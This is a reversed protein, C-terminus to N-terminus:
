VFDLCFEIGIVEGVSVACVERVDVVLCGEIDLVDAGREFVSAAVAALKVVEDGEDVLEEVFESVL